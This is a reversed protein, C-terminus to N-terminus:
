AKPSGTLQLSLPAFLHFSRRPLSLSNIIKAQNKSRTQTPAIRIPPPSQPERRINVQFYFLEQLWFEDPIRPNTWSNQLGLRAGSESDGTIKDRSKPSTGLSPESSAHFPAFSSHDSRQGPRSYPASSTCGWSETTTFLQPVFGSMSVFVSYSNWGGLKETPATDFWSIHNAYTPDDSTWRMVSAESTNNCSRQLATIRHNEGRVLLM